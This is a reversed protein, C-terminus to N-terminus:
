PKRVVWAITELKGLLLYVPWAAWARFRASWVPSTLAEIAPLEREFRGLMALDHLLEPDAHLLASEQHEPSRREVLIVDLGAAAVADDITVQQLTRKEADMTTDYLQDANMEGLGKFRQLPVGARAV